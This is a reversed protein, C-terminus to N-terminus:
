KSGSSLILLNAISQESYASELEAEEFRFHFSAFEGLWSIRMNIYSVPIIHFISSSGLKSNKWTRQKSLDRTYFGLIQNNYTRIAHWVFDKLWLFSWGRKQDRLDYSVAQRTVRNKHVAQWATENILVTSNKPVRLGDQCPGRVGVLGPM